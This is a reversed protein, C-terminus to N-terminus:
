RAMTAMLRTYRATSGKAPNMRLVIASMTIIGMNRPYLFLFTTQATPRIRVM